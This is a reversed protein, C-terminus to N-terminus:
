CAVTFKYRLRTSVARRARSISHILLKESLIRNGTRQSLRQSQSQALSTDMELIRDLIAGHMNRAVHGSGCPILDGDICKCWNHRVNQPPLLERVAVACRLTQLAMGHVGDGCGGPQLAGCDAAGGAVGRARRAGAGAVRPGGYARPLVPCKTGIQCAFCSM